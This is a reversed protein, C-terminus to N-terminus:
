PIGLREVAASHVQYERDRAMSLAQELNYSAVFLLDELASPKSAVVAASLADVDDAVDPFKSKFYDQYSEVVVRTADYESVQSRSIRPGTSHIRYGYGPGQIFGIESREGRRWRRALLSAGFAWDQWKPVTEMYLLGNSIESRRYMISTPVHHKRAVMDERLPYSSITLGHFDGFMRVLTHVFAVDPNGSLIRAGEALWSEHGSTPPLLIDDGDLCIVFDGTAAKLATNRAAQVGRNEGHRIIKVDPESDLDSQVRITTEDTSGDDVVIVEVEAGVSNERASAVCDRLYVGTNFSPIIISVRHM